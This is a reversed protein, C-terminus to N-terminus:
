RLLFCITIWKGVGGSFTVVSVQSNCFRKMQSFTQQTREFTPPESSLWNHTTTAPESFFRNHHTAVPTDPLCHRLLHESHLMAAHAQMCDTIQELCCCCHGSIHTMTARWSPIHDQSRANTLRCDAKGGASRHSTVPRGCVQFVCPNRQVHFVRPPIRHLRLSINYCLLKLEDNLYKNHLVATSQTLLIMAIM